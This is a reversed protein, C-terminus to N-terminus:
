IQSDPPDFLALCTSHLSGRLTRLSRRHGCADDLETACGGFRDVAHALVGNAPTTNLATTETVVVLADWDSPAALGSLDAIPDNSSLQVPRFHVNGEALQVGVLMPADEGITDLCWIALPRLVSLHANLHCPRNLEHLSM